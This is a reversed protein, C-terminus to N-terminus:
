FAVAKGGDRGVDAVARFGNTEPDVEICNAHGIRSWERFEHGMAGLEELVKPDLGPEHMISDPLWQHHVRPARVAESITRGHDIVQMVIQAVTTTITPGGPSGVVARLRGDKTIITPTMSSLMRKGPAIANQPGQVLGFMNPTGPKATFDDMENNLIIGTGPIMVKAGFGGNLTFTNAVANGDKDVVSFHTTQTSEKIDVGAKIQESPTAKNPNVDALRDGVYSVDLLTDMPIDIFDPDAILMNRDAYTRRLTEVYYHIEKASRYGHEHFALAEAGALIQRLVVGGASPPPMAIIGHGRYTFRLPEREVAKYNALDEATWIGGLKQVKTAMDAAIPGEYFAKPGEDAIKQLISSLEPQVWTDGAAYASGDPKRFYKASDAFGGKDMREAGRQMDEAHFSDIVHGDRALAVAPEIVEKWPLVGYHEHAYAFGAVNGPIGAARPGLRSDKTVEGKKDLYMDATAKGPAMERYDIATAKDDAFRVVMFGGGGMNGATPHTVALAFGVGVAADIANGGKQLIALGVDSANPEASTVAGNIGVATADDGAEKSPLSRAISSGEQAAGDSASAEVPPTSTANGCGLVLAVLASRWWL